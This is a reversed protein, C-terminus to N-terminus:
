CLDYGFLGAAGGQFPPLGPLAEAPFRGLSEALRWLPDAPEPQAPKTSRFSALTNADSYISGFPDASVFSFRGHPSHTAASDLFLLGRQRALKRVIDWPEPTPTLEEVLPVVPEIATRPHVIANM